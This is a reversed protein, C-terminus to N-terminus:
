VKSLSAPAVQNSANKLLLSKGIEEGFLFIIEANSSM